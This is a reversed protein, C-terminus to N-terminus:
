ICNFEYLLKRTLKGYSKVYTTWFGRVEAYGNSWTGCKMLLTDYVDRNSICNAGRTPCASSLGWGVVSVTDRVLIRERFGALLNIPEVLRRADWFRLVVAPPSDLAGRQDRCLGFDQLELNRWVIGGASRLLAQRFQTDRGLDRSKCKCESVIFGTVQHGRQFDRPCWKLAEQYREQQRRLPARSEPVVRYVPVLGRTNITRLASTPPM